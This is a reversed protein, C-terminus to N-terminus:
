KCELNSVKNYFEEIRGINARIDYGSEYINLGVENLNLKKKKSNIIRQAWEYATENLDICEVLQSIVVAEMPVGTSIYTPLGMVQSEVAVMGLGESHSPLIFKDFIGYYKGIESQPSIFIVNESINIKNCYEKIEEKLPGDGILILKSSPKERLIERFIDCLFRHNKEPVFRGIHGYVFQNTLGLSKKLDIAQERESLIKYIDISNRMIFVDEEKGFLWDAADQSCAVLYDSHKTIGRQYIAKIKSKLGYGNTTSHSHLITKLNNSKALKSIIKATGRVHIHVITNRDIKKFLKNWFAVYEFHNFGLYKPSVYVKGGLTVIEECYDSLEANHTVFDFQVKERDIHNYITMIMTEAGGRNLGGFVHLIKIKEM